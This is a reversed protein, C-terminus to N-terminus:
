IWRVGTARTETKGCRECTRTAMVRMYDGGWEHEREIKCAIWGLWDRM